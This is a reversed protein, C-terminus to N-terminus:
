TRSRIQALATDLGSIKYGRDMGGETAYLASIRKHDRLREILSEISRIEYHSATQNQFKKWLHQLESQNIKRSCRGVLNVTGAAAICLLLPMSHLM